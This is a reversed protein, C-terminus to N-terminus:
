TTGHEPDDPNRAIGSVAIGERTRRGTGGTRQRRCVGRPSPSSTTRATGLRGGDGTMRAQVSRCRHLNGVQGGDYATEM